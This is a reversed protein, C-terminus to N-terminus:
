DLPHHYDRASAIALGGAISRYYDFRVIRGPFIEELREQVPLLQSSGGTCVVRDIQDATVGASVLLSDVVGDIEAVVPRLIKALTARDLPVQLDIEPIDIAAADNQALNSKAQETANLLSYAHNGRILRWLRGLKRQQDEGSRIGAFLTDMMSPQNMMYAMQWNLLYDAYRYFPFVTDPEALHAASKIRSGEGLEPFVLQQIILQDIRNGGLPLGDTALVKFRGGDNDLLCLDLTGGGFDFTLLREPRSPGGGRGGGGNSASHSQMYSLSAAVPEPYFSFDTFGANECAERLRGMAIENADDDGVFRVPRGIRIAVTEDAGNSAEIARRIDALILTVLAVTRFQRDFVRFREHGRVGLYSKLGRFLRGPQDADDDGRVKVSVEVADGESSGPMGSNETTNVSMAIQGLDIKRLRVVRGANDSLYGSIAGTGVVHEMDRRIYLATPMVTQPDSRSDITLYTIDNGDAVAVTTNTTGFDLGIGIM